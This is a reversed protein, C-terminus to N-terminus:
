WIFFAEMDWIGQIRKCINSRWHHRCVIFLCITVRGFLPARLKHLCTDKNNHGAPSFVLIGGHSGRDASSQKLIQERRDNGSFRSKVTM